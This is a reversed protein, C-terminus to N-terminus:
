NLQKCCAALKTQQMLLQMLSTLQLMMTYDHTSPPQKIVTKWMMCMTRADICRLQISIKRQYIIHLYIIHLGKQSQM